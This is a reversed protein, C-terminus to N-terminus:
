SQVIQGTSAVTKTMDLTLLIADETPRRYYAPRRGVGQFGFRKYFLQARTNSARVELHVRSVGASRAEDLFVSLLRAGIGWRRRGAEVALDLIEAEGAAIRGCLFGVPRGEANRAVLPVSARHSAALEAMFQAMTWPNSFSSREIALVAPLDAASMRDVVVSSEKVGEKGAGAVATRADRVEEAWSPKLYRVRVDDMAMPQIGGRAILDFALRAVGGATPRLTEITVGATRGRVREPEPILGAVMEGSRVNPWLDVWRVRKEDEVPEVRGAEARFVGGFFDGRGADIVARVVGGGKPDAASAIACLSSVPAIPIDLVLSLGKITALGVRLGTFSGPGIAIALVDLSEPGVGARGLLGDVAPLLDESIYRDRSLEGEGVVEGDRALAVSGPITATELALILVSEDRKM